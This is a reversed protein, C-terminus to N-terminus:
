SDGNDILDGLSLVARPKAILGGGLKEPWAVKAIGNMEAITAANLANHNGQAHDEQRYHSDSTSLFTVDRAQVSVVAGILLLLRLAFAATM